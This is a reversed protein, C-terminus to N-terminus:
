NAYLERLLEKSPAACGVFFIDSNDSLEIVSPFLLEDDVDAYNKVECQIREKIEKLTLITPNTDQFFTYKLSLFIISGTDLEPTQLASSSINVFNFNNMVEGFNPSINIVSEEKGKKTTKTEIDEEEKGEIEQQEEELVTNQRAKRSKRVYCCSFPANIMKLGFNALIGYSHCFDTILLISKPPSFTGRTSGPFAKFISFMFDDVSIKKNDATVYHSSNLCKVGHGGIYIVVQTDSDALYKLRTAITNFADSTAEAGILSIVHEKKVGWKHMAEEILTKGNAEITKLEKVEKQHKYNNVIVLLVIKSYKNEKYQKLLKFHTSLSINRSLQVAKAYCIVPILFSITLM